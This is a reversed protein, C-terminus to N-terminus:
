LVQLYQSPVSPDVMVPCVCMKEANFNYIFSVCMYIQPRLSLRTSNISIELFYPWRFVTIPKTHFWSCWLQIRTWLCIILVITYFLLSSTNIFETRIRQLGSMAHLYWLYVCLKLTIASEIEYPTVFELIPNPTWLCIILIHYLVAVAPTSYIRNQDASVTLIVSAPVPNLTWLRIILVMISFLLQQHSDFEARIRFIGSLHPAFIKLLSRIITIVHEHVTQSKAWIGMDAVMLLARHHSWLISKFKFWQLQM